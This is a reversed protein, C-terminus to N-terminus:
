WYGGLKKEVEFWNSGGGHPPKKHGPKSHNGGAGPHYREIGNQCQVSKNESRKTRSYLECVSHAGGSSDHTQRRSWGRCVPAGSAATGMAECLDCCQVEAQANPSLSKNGRSWDIPVTKLLGVSSNLCAGYNLSFNRCQPPPPQYRHEPKRSAFFGRNVRGVTMNTRPCACAPGHMGGSGNHAITNMSPWGPCAPPTLCDLSCSWGEDSTENAFGHLPNCM